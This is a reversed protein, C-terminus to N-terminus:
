TPARRTTRSHRRWRRTRTFPDPTCCPRGGWPLPCPGRIPLKESTRPLKNQCGHVRPAGPPLSSRIFPRHVDSPEVTGLHRYGTAGAAASQPRTQGAAGARPPAWGSEKILEALEVMNFVDNEYCFRGNGAYIAISLSFCDPFSGDPLKGPVRSWFACIVLNDKVVTWLTPFRWDDFGIMCEHMFTAIADRGVYRGLSPRHLHRGRHLTRRDRELGRRRRRRERTALVKGWAARVETRSLYQM